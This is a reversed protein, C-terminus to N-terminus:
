PAARSAEIIQWRGGEAAQRLRADPTVAVPHEVLRLLPLDNHSDSYGWSGALSLRSDSLWDQLRQVKGAQFCPTGLIRKTYWGNEQELVTCLLDPVGLLGAVPEALFSHTATIVALRHGQRRHWALREQLAQRLLAPLGQLFLRRLALMREPPLEALPRALFAMYAPFDMEGADYQRYFAEIQDIFSRDVVQREFLFRSWLMETDGDLLTYDLDFLALAPM